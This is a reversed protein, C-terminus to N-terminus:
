RAKPSVKIVFRAESNDAKAVIEWCGESPFTMFSPTFRHRYQAGTGAELVPPPAPADLRRGGLKLDTGAPRFWAVKFREGPVLNIGGLMWISRDPNVYWFSPPSDPQGGETNEPETAKIPETVACGGATPLGATPPKRCGGALILGGFLGLGCKSWKNM